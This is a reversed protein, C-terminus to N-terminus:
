IGLSNEVYGEAQVQRLSSHVIPLQPIVMRIKGGAKQSGALYNQVAGLELEQEQQRCALTGTSWWSWNKSSETTNM